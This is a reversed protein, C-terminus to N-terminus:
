DGVTLALALGGEELLRSVVASTGVSGLRLLATYEVCSFENTSAISRRSLM